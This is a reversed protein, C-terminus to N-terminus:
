PTVADKVENIGMLSKIKPGKRFPGFHFCLLLPNLEQMQMDAAFVEEWKYDVCFKKQNTSNIVDMIDLLHSNM